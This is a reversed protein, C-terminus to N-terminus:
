LIQNINHYWYIRHPVANSKKEGRQVSGYIDEGERAEQKHQIDVCCIRLEYEM